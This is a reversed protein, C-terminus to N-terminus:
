NEQKIKDYLYERYGAGLYGTPYDPKWYLGSRKEKVNPKWRVPTTSSIILKYHTELKVTEFWDSPLRFEGTKKDLFISEINKLDIDPHKKYYEYVQEPTIELYDQMWQPVEVDFSHRSEPFEVVNFSAPDIEWKAWPYSKKFVTVQCLKGNPTKITLLIYDIGIKENTDLRVIDLIEFEGEYIELKKSLYFVIEKELIPDALNKLYPKISYYDSWRKKNLNHYILFVTVLLFIFWFVLFLLSFLQKM